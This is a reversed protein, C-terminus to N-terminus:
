ASGLTLQTVILRTLRSETREGMAAQTNTASIRALETDNNAKNAEAVTAEQRTQHEAAVRLKLLVDNVAHDTDFGLDM